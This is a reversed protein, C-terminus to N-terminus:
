GDNVDFVGEVQPKSRARVARGLPREFVQLPRMNDADQFLGVPHDVARAARGENQAKM